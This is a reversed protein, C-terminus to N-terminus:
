NLPCGGNGNNDADIASALGLITDRNRSALAANVDAILSAASRPYDVGPHSADLLGAVAARLLNAAADDITPGGQFSLAQLLTAPGLSPYGSAQSFVSAVQTSPSYGTPPWSDTHNKWYGPTCGEDGGSPQEGFYHSPDSSTVNNGKPPTGVVSGLNEYQGATAIGNGTCTMSEGVQLSSKPCTVLVGRDDTVKVNSLSVEGDNLVIYTWLVATGVTIKPGPAEDADEGNTYKKITIHAVPPPPCPDGYYHSPDSDTVNPGGPPTGVVSGINEYQGVTATGKGTCTMSEGSQLSTKPCSVAVSRFLV